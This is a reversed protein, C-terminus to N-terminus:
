HSFLVASPSLSSIGSFALDGNKHLLTRRLRMAM